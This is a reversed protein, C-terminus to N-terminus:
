ESADAEHPDTVPGLGAREVVAELAAVSRNASTHAFWFFAVWPTWPLSRDGDLLFRAGRRSGGPGSRDVAVRQVESWRVSETRGLWHVTVGEDDAVASAAFGVYAVWGAWGASLLAVIGLVVDGQVVALVALPATVASVGVMVKLPAPPPHVEVVAPGDPVGEAPGAPGPRAGGGEAHGGEPSVPDDAM